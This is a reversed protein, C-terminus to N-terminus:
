VSPDFPIAIAVVKIIGTVVTLAATQVLDITDGTTYFFRTASHGDGLANLAGATVWRTALAGDGLNFTGANASAKVVQWFVGLIETNAPAQILQAVDNQALGAGNNVKSFDLLAELPVVPMSQHGPVALGGKTLNFTAM